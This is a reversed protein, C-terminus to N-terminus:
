AFACNRGADLRRQLDLDAQTIGLEAMVEEMPIWPGNAAAVQANEADSILEDEPPALALRRSLPDAMVELIGAVADLQEPTIADILYHAQHKRAEHTM